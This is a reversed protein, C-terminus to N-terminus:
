SAGDMTVRWARVPKVVRREEFKQSGWKATFVELRAAERSESIVAGLRGVAMGDGTESIREYNEM